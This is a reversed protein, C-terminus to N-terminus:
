VVALAQALDVILDDPHEIGIAIRILRDTIGLRDRDAPAIGSHTTSAPHCALTETGGLSVALKAIRLADLFRFAEAEGGQIDFCLTSGAGTCQRYFVKGAPSQPDLLGLFKVASVKPHQELFLAVRRANEHAREVRLAFTELSRTLLWATHPDIQTGITSRLQRVPALVARSGIAAGAVLDSHGGAYKTLSYLVVDAGHRLPKQFIPTLFTNDIMVLPRTGTREGIAHAAVSLAGIDVIDNTPNAPTEALIVKLRGLAQAAEAARALAEISLGDDCPISRIGYAPLTQEVLTQTGGYIPRVYLLVDGPRLHALLTTAIAAMGSSFVEAAEADDWVRLRDELIELNPNNFRSYVLGPSAGAPAQRRGAAFDFLDKGQQASEFVFTSTLFIPPKVSGESFRPSYGYGLMLTEPRLVHEGIRTLHYEM